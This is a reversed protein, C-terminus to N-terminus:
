NSLGKLKAVLTALEANAKELRSASTMAEEIFANRREVSFDESESSTYYSELEFRLRSFWSEKGLVFYTLDSAVKRGDDQYREKLLFSISELDERCKEIDKDLKVLAVEMSSRNDRGVRQKLLNVVELKHFLMADFSHGLGDIYTVIKERDITNGLESPETSLTSEWIM